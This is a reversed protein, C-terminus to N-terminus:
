DIIDFLEEINEKKTAWSTAFRVVTHNDDQKEWFSFKIKEQLKKMEKNDLIIFQQNTPSNLYFTYGRDAFGKKLLEAMDIAHRSIKFYLDDTFLTDFQVGLLRGKALLAGHQKVITMFYQPTNNKTFVVAEGCLAGVKTGGIYFVDCLQAIMPLTVDTESSMLGYGLRAGDLYLPIKYERCIGSIAKLEDATYLTGYETPHSIYVMGPFVMHEHNEDNWFMSLYSKLDEAKIKGNYEPIELVKHGTYEIAGAEHVNIHGTKASIVGEYPKLLSDIVIENTQTGGVMFFIDAEPCECLEQIKKKASECYPDSGYGSVQEMNTEVFRELIKEHAGETYDSEFSLM